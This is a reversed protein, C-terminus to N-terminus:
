GKRKKMIRKVGEGVTRALEESPVRVLGVIVRLQEGEETGVWAGM